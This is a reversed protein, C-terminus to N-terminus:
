KSGGEALLAEAEKRPLASRAIVEDRDVGQKIARRMLRALHQRYLEGDEVAVLGAARTIKELTDAQKKKSKKKSMTVPSPESWSPVDGEADEM